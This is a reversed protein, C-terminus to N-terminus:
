AIIMGTDREINHILVKECMKYAPNYRCERWARQIIKAMIPRIDYEIDANTFEVIDRRVQKHIAGWNVGKTEPIYFNEDDKYDECFQLVDKKLDEISINILSYYDPQLFFQRIITDYMDITPCDPTCKVFDFVEQDCISSM